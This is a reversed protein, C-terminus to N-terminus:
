PWGGGGPPEGFDPDGDGEGGPDIIIQTSFTTNRGNVNGNRNSTLNLEYTYICDRPKITDWGYDGHAPLSLYDIVIMQDNRFFKAPGYFPSQLGGSAVNFPKNQDFSTDKGVVVVALKSYWSISFDLPDPNRILRNSVSTNSQNDPMVVFGNANELINLWDGFRNEELATNLERQTAPNAVLRQTMGNPLIKFAIYKMDLYKDNKERSTSIPPPNSGYYCEPNIVAEKSKSSDVSFVNDLPSSTFHEKRKKHERSDQYHDSKSPCATLLIATSTLIGLKTPLNM